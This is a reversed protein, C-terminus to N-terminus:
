RPACGGWTGWPWRLGLTWGPLERSDVSGPAGHVDGNRAPRAPVPSPDRSLPSLPLPPRRALGRTRALAPLSAM